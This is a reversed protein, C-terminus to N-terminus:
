AEAIVALLFETAKVMDSINITEELTHVKNMGSAIVATPIGFVNFYNADSGGGTAKLLLPVDTRKAARTCLDILTTNQSIDFRNYERTSTFIVDAGVSRVERYFIARIKEVLYTLKDEDHSRAEGQVTVEAPIINTAVGGSIIGVNSVTEDDIRGLPLAAIAKSAAVIANIGKEPEIGAHAAKGKITATFKEHSPAQTVVTGIAGDTDLVFGFDAKLSSLARVGQVGIEEEVSFALILPPHPLATEKIIHIGELIEAIGSKDDGGLITTGDSTIVDGNVVPVVGRGPKVTDMHASLLLTPGQKTGDIRVILNGKPDIQSAFGFPALQDLIYARVGDENGSESDIKVLDLFRNVLRTNNISM